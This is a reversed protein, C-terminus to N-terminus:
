PKTDIIHLKYASKLKYYANQKRNNVINNLATRSLKVGCGKAEQENRRRRKSEVEAFDLLTSNIRKNKALTDIGKRETTNKEINNILLQYISSSRGVNISQRKYSLNRTNNTLKPSQCKNLQMVNKSNTTQENKTTFGEKALRLKSEAGKLKARLYRNEVILRKSTSESEEVREQLEEIYLKLQQEIQTCNLLSIVGIHFRAEEEFQQIIKEYSVSNVAEKCDKKVARSEEMRLNTMIDVTTRIYKLVVFPSLLKLKGKEKSYEGNGYKDLTDTKRIKLYLYLDIIADQLTQYNDKM